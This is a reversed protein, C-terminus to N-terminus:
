EYKTFNKGAEIVIKEKPFFPFGNVSDFTLESLYIKKHFVYLDVRIFNKFDESLIYVYNKLKDLIEMGFTSIIDFDKLRSICFDMLNYNLDYFNKHVKNGVQFNILFFKIKRNVVFYKFEYLDTIPEFMTEEIIRKKPYLHFFEPVVSLGYDRQFYKKVQEKIKEINNTKNHIFVSDHCGNSIKLVVNGKNAIELFNIEDVSNYVRKRQPCINEGLKIQAYKCGLYKDSAIGKLQNSEHIVAWNVINDLKNIIEDNYQIKRKQLYSTRISYFSFLKTVNIEKELYILKDQLKDMFYFLCKKLSGNILDKKYEEFDIDPYIMGVLDKDKLLNEDDFKEKKLELSEKLESISKELQNIKIICIFFIFITILFYFKCDIEKNYYYINSSDLKIKM